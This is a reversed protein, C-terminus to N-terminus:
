RVESVVPFERSVRVPDGVRNPYIVPHIVLYIVPYILPLDGPLDNM